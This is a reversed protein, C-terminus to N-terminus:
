PEVTAAGPSQPTVVESPPVPIGWGQYRELAIQARAALTQAVAAPSVARLAPGLGFALRQLWAPDVVAITLEFWGDDLEKVQGGPVEEAVWRVQPALELRVASAGTTDPDVHDRVELDAHEAASTRLTHLTLIRDVRFLRRDNARTCWADLFWNSGDSLLRLPDVTRVSTVDAASVYEIELQYGDAIAQHITAATETLQASEALELGDAVQVASGAADRLVAITSELLEQGGHTARMSQLAALLATVEATSLRLPRDMERSDRLTLIGHDLDDGAFDLLDGHMYGPTGSVWLTNVDELLQARPVQFHAAVREVEVGPNDRLYAILALLRALRDPATETM